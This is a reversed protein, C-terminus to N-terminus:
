RLLTVLHTHPLVGSKHLFTLVDAAVREAGGDTHIHRLRINLSALLDFYAGLHIQVRKDEFSCGVCRRPMILLSSCMSIARVLHFNQMLLVDASMCVRM